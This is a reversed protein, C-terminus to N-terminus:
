CASDFSKTVVLKDFPSTGLWCLLLVKTLPVAPSLTRSLGMVFDTQSAVFAADSTDVEM